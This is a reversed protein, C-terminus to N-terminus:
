LPSKYNSSLFEVFKHYLRKVALNNRSLFPVIQLLKGIYLEKAHAREENNKSAISEEITLSAKTVIAKEHSKSKGHWLLKKGPNERFVFGKHSWAGRSPHEPCPSDGYFVTCIKCMFGNKLHTFYLWKYLREYQTHNSQRHDSLVTKTTALVSVIHHITKQITM